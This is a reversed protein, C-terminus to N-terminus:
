PSPPACGDGILYAELAAILAEDGAPKPHRRRDVTVAVVFRQVGLNLIRPRRGEVLLAHVREGAYPGTVITRLLRKISTYRAQPHFLDELTGRGGSVYDSPRIEVPNSLLQDVSM